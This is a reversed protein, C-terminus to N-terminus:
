REELAAKEEAISEELKEKKEQLEAVETELEAKFEPPAAKLQGQVEALRDCLAKYKTELLLAEEAGEAKDFVVVEPSGEPEPPHSLVPSRPIILEDKSLARTNMFTPSVIEMRNAHMSDLIQARLDSRASLIQKVEKLIGAVRYEVSFDGLELIQVFSDTLGAEEAAELLTERVKRRPLDYGLTVTASIVTGSSRLTTVPNTVLFLNPLTTLERDETQIEVHLLGRESVRGFHGGARVFDGVRFNRVARLMLGALANGLFTTSSLAISATILIGFFSLLQGRTDSSIPLILLIALGAVATFGLMLMQNRFRYSVANPHRNLLRHAVLLAVVVGIVGLGPPLASTLWNM